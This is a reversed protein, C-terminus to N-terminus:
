GDGNGLLVNVTGFRWTNSAALDSKDDHNFDGVIVGSPYLDVANDSGKRFTGDGNGLFAGINGSLSDATAVDPKGDRDFDGAAVSVSWLGGPSTRQARFSGDGNGLVAGLNRSLSGATAVDPKGDRDFDGAAVSVSWLGGPSTRQARFSGDGNGALVGITGNVQSNVVALDPQGDGNFDAVALARPAADTPYNVAPAFSPLDRAELLDFHPRFKGRRRSRSHVFAPRRGGPRWFG